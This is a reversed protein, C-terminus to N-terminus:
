RGRSIKDWLTFFYPRLMSPVNWGRIGELVKSDYGLGECDCGVVLHFGVDLFDHGLEAFPGDAVLDGFEDDDDRTLLCPLM